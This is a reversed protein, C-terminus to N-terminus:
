SGALAAITRALFADFRDLADAVVPAIRLMRDLEVRLRAPDLDVGYAHRFFHRFGLLALLDGHLTQPVIAPRVGPIEAMAQALLERHWAEGSPVVADLLRAARECVAELGTYWGHVAVAAMLLWPREPPRDRWPALAASADALCRAMARRDEGVELRLRSLEAVSATADPSM